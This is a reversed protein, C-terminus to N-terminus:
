SDTGTNLLSEMDNAEIVFNGESNPKLKTLAQVLTSYKEDNSSLRIFEALIAEVDAKVFHEGSQTVKSMIQIFSKIGYEAILNKKVSDTTKEALVVNPILQNFKLYDHGAITVRLTESIDLVNVNPKIGSNANNSPM